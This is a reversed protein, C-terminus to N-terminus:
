SVPLPPIRHNNERISGTVSWLIAKKNPRESGDLCVWELPIDVLGVPGSLGAARALIAQDLHWKLRSPFRLADYAENECFSAMRVSARTVGYAAITASYYSLINHRQGPFRLLAVDEDRLLDLLPDLSGLVVQDIDAVICPVEGASLLKHLVFFRACAYLTKLSEASFPTEGIEGFSIGVGPLRSLALASRREAEDPAVLHFHLSMYSSHWLASQLLRWAFRRFYSGDCAVLYIARRPQGGVSMPGSPRWLSIVHRAGQLPPGFGRVLCSTSTAGGAGTAVSIDRLFLTTAAEWAGRAALCSGFAYAAEKPSIEFALSFLDEAEAIQGVRSAAVGALFVFAFDALGSSTKLAASAAVYAERDRGVAM